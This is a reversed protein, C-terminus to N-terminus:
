LQQGSCAYGQQQQQLCVQALLNDRLELDVLSSKFAAKNLDSADELINQRLNLTRLAAAGVSGGLCV